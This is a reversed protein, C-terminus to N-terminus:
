QSAMDIDKNGSSQFLSFPLPAEAIQNLLALGYGTRMGLEIPLSPRHRM